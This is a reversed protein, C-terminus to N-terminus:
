AANRIVPKSSLPSMAVFDYDNTVAIFKKSGFKPFNFIEPVVAKGTQRWFAFVVVSVSQFPRRELSVVKGHAM